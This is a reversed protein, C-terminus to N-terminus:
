EAPLYSLGIQEIEELTDTRMIHRLGIRQHRRLPMDTRLTDSIRFTNGPGSGLWKGYIDALIINFTDIRACSDGLDYNVELWINSFEYGPTHRLTLLLTGSPCISDAITDVTYAIPEAYPWAADRFTTFASFYNDDGNGHHGGVTCGAATLALVAMAALKNKLGKM